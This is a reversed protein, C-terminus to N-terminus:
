MNLPPRLGLDVTIKPSCASVGAVDLVLVFCVLASLGCRMADGAPLPHCPSLSAIPAISDEKTGLGLCVVVHRWEVVGSFCIWQGGLQVSNPFSFMHIMLMMVVVDDSVVMMMVVVVMMLMMMMMMM